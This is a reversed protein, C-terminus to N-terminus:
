SNLPQDAAPEPVSRELEKYIAFTEEVMREKSFKEVVSARLTEGYAQAEEPHELLTRIARALAHPNERPVLLGTHKHRVVEPIGGVRTAVVPLGAHGAEILALALAESRSPMLFLDFASLYSAADEVFGALVVRNELKYHAAYEALWEKLAGDGMVVLALDPHSDSLEALARIADEVRKTPHLEAIMGLWRKDALAPALKARAEDRGLLAPAAVGNYVVTFRRLIDPFWALDRRVAKSVCITKHSLIVTVAYAAHMLAQHWWPREENFAWGHATFIIRPVGAMRAALLGLGGKSSNVHVLDPKEEKMLALLEKFAAFEAKWDIDRTLSEIRRIPVGATRLKESLVGEAGYAVLVEHGREKGATALDYVYKQAGGWNAKTIVYLINM